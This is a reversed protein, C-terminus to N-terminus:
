TFIPTVRFEPTRKPRYETLRIIAVNEKTCNM